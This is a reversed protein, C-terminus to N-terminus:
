QSMSPCRLLSVGAVSRSGSFRGYTLTLTLTGRIFGESMTSDDVESVRDRQLAEPEATHRGPSSGAVCCIIVDFDPRAAWTLGSSM